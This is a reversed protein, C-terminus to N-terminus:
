EDGLKLTQGVTVKNGKINNMKKLEDVDIDNSQAIAFLSDGKKVKYTAVNRNKASKSALEKRDPVVENDSVNLKQGVKVTSGSINSMKRIESARIGYEEAISGLTEGSKVVHVNEKSSKSLSNKSAKLSKTESATSSQEDVDSYIKLSKGAQIKNSNLKNWKKVDAISVNYKDAISGITEGTKVTHHNLNGDQKALNDGLAGSTENGYIKLNKGVAINNDTLNNWKMLQDLSVNFRDALEGITDGRKVKYRTLGSRKYNTKVNSAIYRTNEVSQVKIRSGIHLKTGHINNWMKLQAISVKYKAALSRLTEDKRVKHNLWSISPNISASKVSHKESTSQNDLSAYYDKKDKPVYINLTQGIRIRETYSINNWNRLDSSRIEFLGAIGTINDNKKVRYQVLAKEDPIIVVDSKETSDISAIDASNQEEDSNAVAEETSVEETSVNKTNSQVLYPAETSKSNNSKDDAPTIDTNFAIDAPNFGAVPIKLAIGRALHSRNSLGNIKALEVPSIGYKKAVRPLTEGKKVYHLSFQVKAEDPVKVINSAFLARSGKPLKLQYGGESNEPTCNQTLEPNLEQLTEVSVRACSALIKLDILDKVPYTEFELPKQFLVKEFGFKAPNSAIVSVAIFQPVYDRTETPINNRIDWFTHGGTRDLVRKIKGEGCNYAAMALYWDGFMGYLTKLYKAAARTAKEPNRREDFYVGSNLGYMNGTTAMFQWLGVAKATSRATPNLGSEVMSLFILQSPVKEEEFIKAMMPFYKGTRPLWREMLYRFKGKSYIDIYSEVYSNIELPFDSVIVVRKPKSLKMEGNNRIEPLSKKMWEELAAFSVGEPVEVLGDVFKQYDESISKELQTFAENEEIEPYYSLNNVIRLATEYYNVAESPSNIEQKALANVYNQRAEELLENVIVAPKVKPKSVATVTKEVNSVNAIGCSMVSCSLSIMMGYLVTRKM